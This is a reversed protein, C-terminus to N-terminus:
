KEIGVRRGLATNPPFPEPPAARLRDYEGLLALLDVDEARGCVVLRGGCKNDHAHHEGCPEYSGYCSVVHVHARRRLRSLAAVDIM